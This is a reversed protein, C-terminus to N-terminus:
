TRARLASRMPGAAPRRPAGRRGTRARRARRRTVDGAPSVRDFRSRGARRPLGHRVQRGDDGPRVAGVTAARIRPGTSRGPRRSRGCRTACRATSSSAPRRRRRDARGDLGPRPRDGADRLGDGRGRQLRVARRLRHPPAPRPRRRARGVPRGAGVPGVYRVRDGDVHPAVEDRLLARGPHHRRHRASSRRRRRGRHRRATGKDPHIRGFFLLHDGPSPDLAFADTDIGHHITAAYHLEPHRDADSIAVYTTTADYREYVPVIRPSSFGHITTVVPTDVLGSYTLPLFDFGNHIVDFEAAREFVDAIHLCEAVKPDISADESWGTPSTAACGAPRSRTPRPSCRSTTASRRRPRRHAALRVAGVARLAAAAHAVRHARARRHAPAIRHTTVRASRCSCPVNGGAVMRDRRYPRACVGRPRTAESPSSPRLPKTARRLSSAEVSGSTWSSTTRGGCGRRTGSGAAPSPGVRDNPIRDVNGGVAQPM